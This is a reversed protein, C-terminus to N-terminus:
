PVRFDRNAFRVFSGKSGPGKSEWMRSLRQSFLTCSLAFEPLLHRLTEHLEHLFECKPVVGIFLLPCRQQRPQLIDLRLRGIAELRLIELQRSLELIERHPSIQLRVFARLS